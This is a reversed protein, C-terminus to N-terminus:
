PTNIWQQWLERSLFMRMPVGDRLGYTFPEHTEDLQETLKEIHEHMSVVVPYSEVKPPPELWYGVQDFKRLYWPVPWHSSGVVAVTGLHGDMEKLDQLWNGMKEVGSRTPVYAYPNRADSHLRITAFRSQKWQTWLCAALLLVLSVQTWRARRAFGVFALGALWCLLAWPLCMLWPTKYSILSYILLHFVAAHALFQIWRSQGAQLRPSWSLAYSVVALVVVPTGYWWIGASQRPWALLKLYEHWPKDHGETTEYVFYTRVADLAGKLHTFGHTYCLLATFAAAGASLALGKGHRSLFLRLGELTIRKREQLLLIGLAAAWALVSIAFTEKAAFMLGLVVGPIGWRPFRLCVGLFLAGFLTLLPEHIFMRSFYVLLPSVALLSAAALAGLDGLSRRWMLPVLVLLLGATATVVRLSFKSLESWSSEGRLYCVPMTLDALLPGHYHSPNFEGGQGEMRKAMLRAGTAEDAHMPRDTLEDFRLFAATVVVGIWALILLARQTSSRTPQM